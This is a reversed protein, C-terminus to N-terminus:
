AAADPSSIPNALCDIIARQFFGCFNLVRSYLRHLRQPRGLAYMLCKPRHLIQKLSIARRPMSGPMLFALQYAMDTVSGM